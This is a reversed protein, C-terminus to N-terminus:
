RYVDARPGIRVLSIVKSADDVNYVVRISGQRRRWLCHMQGKLHAYTPRPGRPRRAIEGIEAQVLEQIDAVQSSLWKRSGRDLTADEVDYEKRPM